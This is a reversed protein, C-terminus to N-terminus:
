GKIPMLLTFSKLDLTADLRYDPGGRKKLKNVWGPQRKITIDNILKFQGEVLAKFDPRYPPTNAVSINFASVLRDSAYSIMEGRDGTIQRPYVDCPWEREDIEKGYRECFSVKETFANELAMMAGQWSPGEFGVYFGVIMRSWHDVVFYIVPRGVVYRKDISSLLYIDGVTADIEYLDAPGNSLHETSGTVPRNTLLYSGSGERNITLTKLDLDKKAWYGFQNFTPLENQGKLIPVFVGDKYELSDRFLVELTKQYAEKLTLKRGNYWQKWYRKAGKVLLQRVEETVNMGEMGPEAKALKSPRGRKADGPERTKGPAGCRAFKPLLANPTQGEQWFQRLWLYLKSRSTGTLSHLESIIGGRSEKKLLGVHLQTDGLVPELIEWRKDRVETSEETFCDDGRTDALFPDDNVLKVLNSEMRSALSSIEWWEPLANPGQVDILAIEGSEGDIHLVRFFAQKEDKEQNSLLANTHIQLSNM